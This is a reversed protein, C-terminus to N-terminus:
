EVLNMANQIKPFSIEKNKLIFPPVIWKNIEFDFEVKEKIKYIEQKKLLMNLVGQYFDLDKEQERITDLLEGRDGEKEKNDDRLDREM